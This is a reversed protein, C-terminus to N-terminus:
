RGLVRPARLSAGAGNRTASLVPAGTPVFEVSARRPTVGGAILSFRPVMPSPGWRVRVLDLCGKACQVGGPFVSCSVVDRPAEHAPDTLVAVEARREAFPCDLSTRAVMTPRPLLHALPVLVFITLLLMVVPTAIVAIVLGTLLLYVWEM